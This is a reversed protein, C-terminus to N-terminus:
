AALTRGVQLAHGGFRRRVTDVAGVLRDRKETQQRDDGFLALQAPPFVLRDCVLRLHRVRVRRVWALFLARRATEFLTLDNATAPQAAAQRICRADDSYDLVVTV